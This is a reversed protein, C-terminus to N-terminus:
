ENPHKDYDFAELLTQALEKVQERTLQSYSARYANSVIIQLMPGNKDGGWFRTLLVESPLYQGRNHKDETRGTVGTISTSM